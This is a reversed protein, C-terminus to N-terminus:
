KSNNRKSDLRFNWEFFNLDIPAFLLFCNYEIGHSMHGIITIYAKETCVSQLHAWLHSWKIKFNIWETRQATIKKNKKRDKETQRSMESRILCSLLYRVNLLNHNQFHVSNQIAIIIAPICHIFSNWQNRWIISIVFFFRHSAWLYEELFVFNLNWHIAYDSAPMAFLSLSPFCM